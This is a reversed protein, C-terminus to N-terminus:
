YGAHETLQVGTAGVLADNIDVRLKMSGVDVNDSYDDESGIRCQSLIKATSDTGEANTNDANSSALKGKSTTEHSPAQHGKSGNNYEVPMRWNMDAVANPM